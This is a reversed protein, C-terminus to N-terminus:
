SKKKLFNYKCAIRYDMLPRKMRQDTQKYMPVLRLVSFILTEFPKEARTPSIPHPKAGWAWGDAIVYSRRM